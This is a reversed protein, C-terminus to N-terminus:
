ATSRRGSNELLISGDGNSYIEVDGERSLTCLRRGVAKTAKKVCVSMAHMDVDHYFWKQEALAMRGM